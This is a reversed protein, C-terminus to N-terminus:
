SCPPRRRGDYGGPSAASTDCSVLAKLESKGEPTAIAKSLALGADDAASLFDVAGEQLEEWTLHKDGNADLRKFARGIEQMTQGGFMKMMQDRHKAVGKGWEKSTVKGDADHDLSDFLAKLEDWVKPDGVKNALAAGAADSSGILEAAHAEMEEWTLHKDDNVDIRRFAMGVEALTGGGFYKKLVEQNKSVGKGWEKSSVKGDSDKDLAVFIAKLEANGKATQVADAMAFLADDAESAYGFAAEQFEVWTLSGNGDKDIRGFALTVELATPSGLLTKLEKTFKPVVKGWERISVKGDKDKDMEEFIQKLADYGEPKQLSDALKLAVDDVREPDPKAESAAVPAPAPAPAAAPAKPPPPANPEKRTSTPPHDHSAGCGM